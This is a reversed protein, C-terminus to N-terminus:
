RLVISPHLLGPVTSPEAIAVLRGSRDFLRAPGGPLVSRQEAAGAAHAPPGPSAFRDAALVDVPRLDRGDAVRRDGEDTLTLATLSPLM